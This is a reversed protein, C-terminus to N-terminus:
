CGDFSRVTTTVGGIRRTHVSAVAMLHYVTNRCDRLYVAQARIALGKRSVGKTLDASNECRSIAPILQGHVAFGILPKAFAGLFINFELVYEM